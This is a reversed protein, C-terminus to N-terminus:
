VKLDIILLKSKTFSEYIASLKFIIIFQTYNPCLKSILLSFRYSLNHQNNLINYLLCIQSIFSFYKSLWSIWSLSDIFRQLQIQDFM